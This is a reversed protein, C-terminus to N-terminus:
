VTIFVDGEPLSEIISIGWGHKDSWDKLYGSMIGVAPAETPRHGAEIVWLGISAAVLAQHYKIEGTVMVDAGAARAAPLYDGGGGPLVAVREIQDPRRGSTRLSKVGLLEKLEQQLEEPDMRRSGIRGIGVGEEPASLPYFDVAPEEYPHTNKVAALVSPIDRKHIRTELRIEGVEEQKGVYGTYPRAGSLPTFRGTGRCSFSCGEYLGIKGAGAERLAVELIDKHDEPVFVVAKMLGESKVPSLVNVDALGLERATWDALGGRAADLNTHMSLVSINERIVLALMSGAPEGHDINRVPNFIFPHHTVLLDAKEAVARSIEPEGADLGVVVKSVVQDRNGVQLGSNDWEECLDLPALGELADLIEGVKVSMGGRFFFFHMRDSASKVAVGSM